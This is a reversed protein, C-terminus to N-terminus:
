GDNTAKREFYQKWDEKNYKRMIGLVEGSEEKTYYGLDIESLFELILDIMKDQRDVKKKLDDYQKLKLLDTVKSNVIDKLEKYIKLKEDKKKIQGKLSKEVQKHGDKEQKNIDKQFQIEADKEKLMDQLEKIFLILESKTKNELNVNYEAIM